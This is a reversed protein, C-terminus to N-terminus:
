SGPRILSPQKDIKEIESEVAEFRKMLEKEEDIKHGNLLMTAIKDIEDKEGKKAEELRRKLTDMVERRINAGHTLVSFDIQHFSKIFRELNEVQSKFDKPWEEGELASVESPILASAGVAAAGKLFERRNPQGEITM